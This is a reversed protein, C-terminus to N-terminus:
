DKTGPHLRVGDCDSCTQTQQTFLTGCRPCYSEASSITAPDIDLSAPDMKHRKLEAALATRYTEAFERMAQAEEPPLSARTYPYSSRWINQIHPKWLSEDTCTMLIATADGPIDVADTVVDAARIMMPPCLFMKAFSEWRSSKKNPALKNHTRLFLIGCIIHLLLIPLGVRWLLWEAPLRCLSVPFWVLLCLAYASCFLTLPATKKFLNEIPENASRGRSFENQVAKTVAKARHPATMISNLTERLRLLNDETDKLWLDGNIKLSSGCIKIDTIDDYPIFRLPDGTHATSALPSDSCIGESGLSCRPLTKCLSIGLPLLLPRLFWFHRALVFAADTHKPRLATGQFRSYLMIGSSRVRLFCDSLYILFLVMLLHTEDASISLFGV